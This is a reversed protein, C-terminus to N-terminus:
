PVKKITVICDNWDIADPQEDASAWMDEFGFSFLNGPVSALPKYPSQRWQAAPHARSGQNWSTIVLKAKHNNTNEYTWSSSVISFNDCEHLISFNENNYVIISNAHDAEFSFFFQAKLMPEIGVLPSWDLNIPQNGDPGFGAGATSPQLNSSGLLYERSSM